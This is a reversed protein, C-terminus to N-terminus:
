TAECHVNLDGTGIPVLDALTLKPFLKFMLDFIGNNQASASEPLVIM